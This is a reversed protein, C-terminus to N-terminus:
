LQTRTENEKPVEGDNARAWWGNWASTSDPLPLPLSYYWKEFMAFEAAHRQEVTPPHRENWVAQAQALMQGFDSVTMLDGVIINNPNDM